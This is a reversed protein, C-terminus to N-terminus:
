ASAHKRKRKKDLIIYALFVVVAFGAIWILAKEIKGNKGYIALLVVLPTMGALTALIFKKYSMKLLGAAFGLADNCLTSLRIIAVAAAGYSSIFARLTDFTKKSLWKDLTRMGLRNGIFYGLSSSAFIGVLSIVSGWIPGYSLIAIMMVLINPIFLLFMQLVMIVVLVIPGFLGFQSVWDEIRSEDKSTLIDYAENIAEKFPPVIFYCIVLLALISFAIAFPKPITIKKGPKMTTLM